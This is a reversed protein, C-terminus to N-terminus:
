RDPYSGADENERATRQTTEETVVWQVPVDFPTNPLETMVQFGFVIGVTIAGPCAALLRDYFGKGFGLRYGRDDVALAPVLILDLNEAVPQSSRPQLFGHGSEELEEASAPAEHFSLTGAEWDARPLYIRKGAAQGQQTLEHPNVEGGMAVYAGISQSADWAELGRVRECIRHSRAARQEKPIARRVASLRKRLEAKARHRLELEAERDFSRPM